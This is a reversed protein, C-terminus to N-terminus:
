NKQQKIQSSLAYKQMLNEIIRWKHLIINNFEFQSFFFNFFFLRRKSFNHLCLLFCVKILIVIVNFYM